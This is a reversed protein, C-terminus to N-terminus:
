IILKVVPIMIIMMMTIAMTMEDDSDDNVNSYNSDDIGTTLM